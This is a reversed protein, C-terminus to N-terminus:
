NNLVAKVNEGARVFRGPFAPNGREVHFRHTLLKSGPTGQLIGNVPGDTLSYSGNTNNDELAFHVQHSVPDLVLLPICDVNEDSQPRDSRGPGFAHFSIVSPAMGGTADAIKVKGAWTQPLRNLVVRAMGRNKHGRDFPHVALVVVSEPPFTAETTSSSAVAVVPSAPQSSVPVASLGSKSDLSSTRTVGCVDVGTAATTTDETFSILPSGCGSSVQQQQQLDFYKQLTDSLRKFQEPSSAKLLTEHPTNKYSYYLSGDFEQQQDTPPTRVELMEPLEMLIVSFVVTPKKGNPLVYPGKNVTQLDRRPNPGGKNNNIINKNHSNMPAFPPTTQRHVMGNNAQHPAVAFFHPPAVSGYQPLQQHHHHMQGHNAPFPQYQQYMPQQHHGGGGLSMQPTPQPQAFYHQQQQPHYHQQQHLYATPTMVFHHQHHASTTTMIHPQTATPPPPVYLLRPGRNPDGGVVNGLSGQSMGIHGSGYMSHESPNFTATNTSMVESSMSEGTPVGAGSWNPYPSHATSIHQGGVSGFQVPQNTNGLSSPGNLLRNKSGPASLPSGNAAADQFSSSYSISAGGTNSLEHLYQSMDVPPFQSMFSMPTQMLQWQTSTTGATNSTNPTYPSHMTMAAAPSHQHHPFPHHQVATGGGAKARSSQNADMHAPLAMGQAAVVGGDLNGFNIMIGQDNINSNM